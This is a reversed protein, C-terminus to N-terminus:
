AASLPNVVSRATRFSPIPTHGDSGRMRNILPGDLSSQDLDNRPAPRSKDDRGVRAHKENKIKSVKEEEAALTVMRTAPVTFDSVWAFMGFVRDIVSWRIRKMRM